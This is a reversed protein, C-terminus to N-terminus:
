GTERDPSDSPLGIDEHELPHARPRHPGRLQGQAPLRPRVAHHVHGTWVHIPNNENNLAGTLQIEKSAGGYLKLELSPNAISQQTVPHEDNAPTQKWQESFFLAPRTVRPAAGGVVRHHQRRHSNPTRPASSSRPSRWASMFDDHANRIGGPSTLM